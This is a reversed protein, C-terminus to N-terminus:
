DKVLFFTAVGVLAAVSVFLLALVWPHAWALIWSILFLSPFWWVLLALVVAALVAAGFARKARRKM